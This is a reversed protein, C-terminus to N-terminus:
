GFLFALEDVEQVGIAIDECPLRRVHWVYQLLDSHRMRPEFGALCRKRRKSSSLRLAMPSTIVLSRAAPNMLSTNWESQSALGTRTLFFVSFHLIHM